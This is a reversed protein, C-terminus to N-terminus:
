GSRPLVESQNHRSPIKKWGILIVVLIRTTCTMLISNTRENSLRRKALAWTAVECFTPQKRLNSTFGPDINRCSLSNRVKEEEEVKQAQKKELNMERQSENIDKTRKMDQEHEERRKRDIDQLKQYRRRDAERRKRGREKLERAKQERERVISYLEEDRLLRERAQREKWQQKEIQRERRREQHIRDLKLKRIWQRFMNFELLTCKVFGRPTVYGKVSSVFEVAHMYFYCGNRIQSNCFISQKKNHQDTTTTQKQKNTRKNTKEKTRSFQRWNTQYIFHNFGVCAHQDSYSNVINFM